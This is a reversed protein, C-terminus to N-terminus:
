EETKSLVHCRHVSYKVGKEIWTRYAPRVSIKLHIKALALKKLFAREDGKALYGGLLKGKYKILKKNEYIEAEVYKKEYKVRKNKVAVVEYPKEKQGYICIKFLPCELCKPKKMLCISSGFDMMGQNIDASSYKKYQKTIQEIVDNRSLRSDKKRKIRSLGSHRSPLIELKNKGLFVRGLIRKINTDLPLVPKNYAFSLIAKATYPGIGPISILEKETPPFKGKYQEVIVKAAKLMNRGRNYYGLGEFYPLFKNWTTKALSQITPFQQIFRNYFEMGRSMQTQQLLIESVWIKYADKIGRFPLSRKNKKYWTLLISFFSSLKQM